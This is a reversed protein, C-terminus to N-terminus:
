ATVADRRDICLMMVGGILAAAAAMTWAWGFGNGDAVVGFAVPGVLAGTLCGAQVIGSADAPADLHHRVVALQLLGPWGWGATFAVITLVAYLLLGNVIGLAMYAVSSAALMRGATALPTHHSHDIFWGSTLRAVIGASSGLILLSGATDAAFGAHATSAVYFAGLSNAAVAWAVPWASGPWVHCLPPTSKRVAPM